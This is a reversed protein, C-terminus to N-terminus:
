PLVGQRVPTSASLQQQMPVSLTRTWIGHFLCPPVLAPHLDTEGAIRDLLRQWPMPGNSLATNAAHLVTPSHPPELRYGAVLRLNRRLHPEPEPMLRYAWGVNDCANGTAEFVEASRAGSEGRTRHVDIVVLSGDDLRVFFDPVHTTPTDPSGPLYLHLTFPQAAIAVAQHEFELQHIAGMELGSECVILQRTPGFYVLGPRNRLSRNGRIERVQFVSEPGLAHVNKASMVVPDVPAEDTSTWQITTHTTTRGHTTTATSMANDM